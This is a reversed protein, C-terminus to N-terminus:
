SLNDKVIKIIEERSIPKMYFITNGVAQDHQELLNGLRSLFGSIICIKAESDIVRLEKLLEKGDKDPLNLDLFTLHIKKSRFLAIAKEANDAFDLEYDFTELVSKFAGRILEDDDIILIRKRGEKGELLQKTTKLLLDKFVPKRMIKDVAGEKILLLYEAMKDDSMATVICVKTDKKVKKIERFTDLGGMGPMHIDLYILDYDASKIKEIGSEGSLSTDVEYGEKELTSKVGSCVTEDDDIILIRPM